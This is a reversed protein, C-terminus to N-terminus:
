AGKGFTRLISIVDSMQGMKVIIERLHTLDRVAITFHNEATHNPLTKIKANIVSAKTEAFVTTMDHLLGQRDFSVVRLAVPFTAAGDAKWEMPLIREPEREILNLLNPCVTRHINIGRGRTVYGAVEDGPIPSCCKGRKHMVNDLMGEIANAARRSPPPATPLKAQDQVTGPMLEKLKAVLGHVGTLGQGVRTFIEDPKVKNRLKQAVATMNESSLAVRPDMGQRRLEKEVAERGRDAADEQDRKRLYSRIKAKAHQSIVLKMWDMSPQASSRTIMEVVDGNQLKHDLRVMNGNVKAGVTKLGLDTHIRFAFDLPMAGKPLDLVDGKPTFVFVQESLFDINLTRLFDSSRQSDSSWAYLQKRMDSLQTDADAGARGEKYSWHAAVGFEAIEHMEHTRIQIELPKGTPGLVKTHISQYGNPKPASIYDFFLGPMPLWLEHVIGLVIYCDARSSVLVRLASLDYIEDFPVGQQVMKNFISFLHKTRGMLRADGLGREILRAQLITMATSLEKEREEKSQAVLASIRGFEDPHLTKFALDELQWKIQWIGLRAAIPAYIDLTENAISTRKADQHGKLTEMNHLRDALKIIMVRVDQAMALLMNRLTEVTRKTEAARRVTEDDDKCGGLDLKTVGKVLHVVEAGFESELEAETVSTDELADHLLASIISEEDLHLGILIHAVKIPHTFFPEGTKRNQGYHLRDARHFAREIRALDADPRSRAVADLLDPLLRPDYDVALIAPGSM